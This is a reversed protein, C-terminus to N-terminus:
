NVIFHDLNTKKLACSDGDNLLIQVYRGETLDCTVATPQMINAVLSNIM